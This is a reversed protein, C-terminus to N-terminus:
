SGLALPETRLTSRVTISAVDAKHADDRTLLPGTLPRHRAFPSRAGRSIILGQGLLALRRAESPKSAYATLRTTCDAYIPWTGEAAVLDVAVLIVSDGSPVWNSPLDTRVDVTEDADGYLEIVLDRVARVPDPLQADVM